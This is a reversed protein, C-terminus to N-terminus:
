DHVLPVLWFLIPHTCVLCFCVAVPVVRLVQIYKIIERIVLPSAYQALLRLLEFCASALIWPKTLKWFVRDLKPKKDLAKAAAQEEAWFEEFRQVVNGARLNEPLEWLDSHQLNDGAKNRKYGLQVINDMWSFFIQGLCGVEPSPAATVMKANDIAVRKGLSEPISSLSEHSGSKTMVKVVPGGGEGHAPKDNAVMPQAPPLDSGTDSQVM